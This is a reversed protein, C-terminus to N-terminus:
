INKQALLCVCGGYLHRAHGTHEFGQGGFEFRLIYLIYSWWIFSSIEFPLFLKNCEFEGNTLNSQGVSVCSLLISFEKFFM